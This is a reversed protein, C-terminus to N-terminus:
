SDAEGRGLATQYTKRYAEFMTEFTYRDLVRERNQRGLRARLAADLALDEFLRSLRAEPEGSGLPVLFGLQEEPVISRIDGVDTAVVPLGSCMAELLAVPHQESDSTLAFLDMARYFDSLDTLHGALTLVGGSPSLRRALALLEDRGPGDGALLLHPPRGGLRGRDIGAVARLLRAFNKVPRLHGVSGIVLADEPIDFERRLQPNEGPGFRDTLIGNEILQLRGDPIRWSERAIRALGRSCVVVKRARTLGFRRLLVRRRKQKRAEDLNFGDEHHVHALGRLAAGFRAALVADFSGWNYTLLLDPRLERLMKSLERPRRWPGRAPPERMAVDLEPPILEAAGTRGDMALITHRFRRGFGAMLRATRIQPGAAVFTAFVHLLHAPPRPEPM